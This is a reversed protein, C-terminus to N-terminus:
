QRGSVKRPVKKQKQTKLGNKEERKGPKIALIEDATLNSYVELKTPCGGGASVNRQQWSRQDERGHDIM